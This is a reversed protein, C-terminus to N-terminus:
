GIVVALITKGLATPAVVLPAKELVSSVIDEQYQRSEITNEKILTILNEM